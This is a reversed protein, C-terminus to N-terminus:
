RDRSRGTEVALRELFILQGGAIRRRAEALSLWAARDMEPYRRVIGSGKPWELDFENSVALTADVDQELAWVHVEKGSALQTSGLAIFDGDVDFGTEERFERRATDLLSEGAEVLGKPVSWVGADRGAWFPGGPHALLVELLGAARRFLLVGASVQKM